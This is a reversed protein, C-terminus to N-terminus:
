RVSHLEQVLSIMIQQQLQIIALSLERLQQTHNQAQVFLRMLDALTLCTEESLSNRYEKVVNTIRRATLREQSPEKLVEQMVMKQQEEDLGKLARAQNENTLVLGIPALNRAVSSASILRDAWARNHKWKAKCYADFSKFDLQYLKSDRIEKLAQGQLISNQRIITELKKLPRTSNRKIKERKFKKETAENFDRWMQRNKFAKVLRFFKKGLNPALDLDM